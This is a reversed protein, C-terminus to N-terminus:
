YIQTNHRLVDCVFGVELFDNGTDRLHLLIKPDPRGVDFVQIDFLTGEQTHQGIEDALSLLDAKDVGLLRPRIEAFIEVAIRDEERPQLSHKARTDVELYDDEVELGSIDTGGVEGAGAEAHFADACAVEFGTDEGILRVQHIGGYVVEIGDPGPEFALVAAPLIHAGVRYQFLTSIGNLPWLIKAKESVWPFYRLSATGAAASMRMQAPSAQSPNLGESMFSKKSQYREFGAASLIKTAPFWSSM